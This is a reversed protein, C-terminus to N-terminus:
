KAEISQHPPSPSPSPRRRKLWGCERGACKEHSGCWACWGITHLEAILDTNMKVLDDNLRNTHVMHSAPMFATAGADSNACPVWCEDEDGVNRLYVTIM